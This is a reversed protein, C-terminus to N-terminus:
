PLPNKGKCRKRAREAALVAPSRFDTRHRLETELIDRNITALLRQFALPKSKSITPVTGTASMWAYVMADAFEGAIENRQFDGPQFELKELALILLRELLKLRKLLQRPSSARFVARYRDCLKLRRLLARSSLKADSRRGERQDHQRKKQQRDAVFLSELYRDLQKWEVTRELMRRLAYLADNAGKVLKRARGRDYTRRRFSRSEYTAIALMANGLFRKLSTPEGQFFAKRVHAKMASSLVDRVHRARSEPFPLVRVHQCEDSRLTHDPEFKPLRDLETRPTRPRAAKANRRRRM